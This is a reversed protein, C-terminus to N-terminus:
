SPLPLELRRLVETSHPAFCEGARQLADLHVKLLGAEEPTDVDYWPPLLGLTGEGLRALTQQLVAGTSWEVGAFLASDPRRQGVLYYGGDTSPGLVVDREGLLELARDICDPPLSPSDSGFILVREGGQGFCWRMVWDMRQGLDLEPQAVLEVGQGALQALDNGADAPAFAVVKRGAASIRLLHVSDLVFARYLEAAEEPTCHSTLRTKVKGPQPNKVFLVAFSTM